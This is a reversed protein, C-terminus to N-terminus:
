SIRICEGKIGMKCMSMYFNLVNKFPMVVLLAPNLALHVDLGEIDKEQRMIYNEREEREKKRKREEKVQM